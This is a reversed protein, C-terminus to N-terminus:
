LISLALIIDAICVYPSRENQPPNQPHNEPLGRNQIMKYTASNPTINWDGCIVLPDNAAFSQAARIVMVAHAVMSQCAVDSGFLCPMHYNGIVFTSEGDCLRVLVVGNKRSRTTKWSDEREEEKENGMSDSVIHQWAPWKMTDTVRDVSVNKIEFRERPWAVCPGMYGNRAKHGQYSVYEYKYKSFIPILKEMWRRSVEQMCIVANTDMQARVKSMVREYRVDQDCDSPRTKDYYSWNCLKESLVNYSVVNVSNM